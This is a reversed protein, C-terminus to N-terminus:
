RRNISKPLSVGFSSAVASPNIQQLKDVARALGLGSSLCFLLDIVTGFGANPVILVAAGALILLLGRLVAADVAGRNM